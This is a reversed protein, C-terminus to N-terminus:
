IRSCSIVISSKVVHKGDCWEISGYSFSNSPLSSVTFKVMYSQKDNVQSFTLSSQEVKVKVSENQVNVSM